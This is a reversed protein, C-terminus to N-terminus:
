KKNRKDIIINNLMEWAREVNKKEEDDAASSGSAGTTYIIVTNGDKDKVERTGITAYPDKAEEQKIMIQITQDSVGAKKLDIVQQPTLAFASIAAFLSWLFVAFTIIIRKM